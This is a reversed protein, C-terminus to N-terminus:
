TDFVSLDRNVDWHVICHDNGASVLEDDQMWCLGTVGDKHVFKYTVRRRPTKHNWIYVSEDLGGTALMNGNPSWSLCTVTTTHSQWLGTVKPEWVGGSSRSWIHVERAADGIALMSGDPSFAICSIVGHPGSIISPSESLTTGEGQVTYLHVKCDSGGVAVEGSYMSICKPDYSTSVNALPKISCSSREVSFLSLGLTTAVAVLNSSPSASIGCPQGSTAASALYKGDAALRITDDWGVSVVGDSCHAIGSIKNSHSAGCISHAVSGSLRRTVGSSLTTSCVVGDFSGTLVNGSSDPSTAMATISVQHGQFVEECVMGDGGCANLKCVDGRLTVALPYEEAWTCSVLMDGVDSGSSWSSLVEEKEVNWLLLTKDASATLLKLGDSSWALGYVSGSHKKPLSKVPQGTKGDYLWIHHDSGGTALRGGDPSYRVINVFNSHQGKNSHDMVFPPGAFFITRMDESATMIRFPREPRYACSTVRKTHGVLEGVNNGTDWMFVRMNMGGGDGVAVIRKSEPDWAIDKIAGGLAHIEAKLQHEPNDWSWVRVKGSADGSAVWYGSPSFTAATVVSSHGRYAFGGKPNKMDMVMM